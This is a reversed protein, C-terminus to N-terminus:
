KRMSHRIALVGMWLTLPTIIVTTIITLRAVALEGKQWFDRAVLAMAIAFCVSTAIYVIGAVLGSVRQRRTQPRRRATESQRRLERWAEIIRGMNM